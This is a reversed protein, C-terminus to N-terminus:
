PRLDGSQYLLRLTQSTQELANTTIGRNTANGTASGGASGGASVGSTTTGGLAGAGATTRDASIPNASILSTVSSATVTGRGSTGWAPNLPPGVQVDEITNAPAQGAANQDVPTQDVPMHAGQPNLARANSAVLADPQTVVRKLSAQCVPDSGYLACQARLDAPSKAVLCQVHNPEEGCEAPRAKIWECSPAKEIGPRTQRCFTSAQKHLCYTSDKLPGGENACMAGEFALCGPQTKREATECLRFLTTRCEEKQYHDTTFCAIRQGDKNTIIGNAHDAKEAEDRMRREDRKEAQNAVYLAAGGAGILGVTGLMGLKSVKKKAGEMDATASDLQQSKLSFDAAFANLLNKCTEINDRAAEAAMTAVPEQPANLIVKLDAKCVREYNVLIGGGREHVGCANMVTNLKRKQDRSLNEGEQLVQGISRSDTGSGDAASGAGGKKLKKTTISLLIHSLSKKVFTDKAKGCANLNGEYATVQGGLTQNLSKLADSEPPPPPVVVAKCWKLQRQVDEKLGEIKPSDKCDKIPASTTLGAFAPGLAQGVRIQTLAVFFVLALVRLLLRRLNPVLDESMGM